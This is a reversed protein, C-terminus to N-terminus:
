CYQSQLHYTHPLHTSHQFSHDAKNQHQRQHKRQRFVSNGGQKRTASARPRLAGFSILAIFCATRKIDGGAFFKHFRNTRFIRIGHQIQQIIDRQRRFIRGGHMKGAHQVAVSM